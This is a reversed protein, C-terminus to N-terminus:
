PVAPGRRPSRGGRDGAATAQRRLQEVGIAWAEVTAADFQSPDIRELLSLGQACHEVVAAIWEPSPAAVDGIAIDVVPDFGRHDDAPYWGFGDGFVVVASADPAEAAFPDEVVTM